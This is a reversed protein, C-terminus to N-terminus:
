MGEGEPVDEVGVASKSDEANGEPQVLVAGESDEERRGMDEGAGADVERADPVEQVLGEGDVYNEVLWAEASEIDTWAEDTITEYAAMAAKKAKGTGDRITDAITQLAILEDMAFLEDSFNELLESDTVVRALLVYLASKEEDSDIERFADTIQSRAADSVEENPDSIFNTLEVFAQEGFWGLEDVFMERLEANKCKAVDASLEAVASFDDDDVAQLITRMLVKQEEPWPTGDEFVWLAEEDGRHSIRVRRVIRGTGNTAAAVAADIKQRALSNEGMGGILKVCGKSDPTSVADAHEPAANRLMLWGGIVAVVVIVVTVLTKKMIGGKAYTM